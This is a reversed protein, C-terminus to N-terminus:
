LKSNNQRLTLTLCILILVGGVIGGYLQNEAQYEIGVYLVCCLYFIMALISLIPPYETKSLKRFTSINLLGIVIFSIGMMFSIVGWADWLPQTKGSYEFKKQLFDEIEPTILETLHVYSHVLGVFIPMVAGVILFIIRAIKSM